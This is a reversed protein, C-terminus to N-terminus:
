VTIQEKILSEISISQVNKTQANLYDMRRFQSSEWSCRTNDVADIWNYEVLYYWGDEDAGDYTVTETFLPGTCDKGTADEAWGDANVCVLKTEGPIWQTSM